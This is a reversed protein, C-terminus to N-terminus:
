LLVLNVLLSGTESPPFCAAGRGSSTAPYSPSAALPSHAALASFVLGEHDTANPRLLIWPIGVARLQWLRGWSGAVSELQWCSVARQEWCVGICLLTPEWLHLRWGHLLCLGWVPLQLM